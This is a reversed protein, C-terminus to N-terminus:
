GNSTTTSSETSDRGESGSAETTDPASPTPPDSSESSEGVEAARGRRKRRLTRWIGIAFLLVGAGILLGVAVTELTANVNVVLEAAESLQVGSTTWLTAEVGSVGNAIAQVPLTARTVGGAPITVTGTETVNLHGTTPRLRVEVTVERDSNNEIFLPLSSEHGILQIESGQVVSIQDEVGTAFEIFETRQTEWSETQIRANGITGILGIRLEEAAAVPDAYLATLDMGRDFATELEQFQEITEDSYSMPVLETETLASTDEAGDPLPQIETWENGSLEELLVALQEPDDLAERPLTTVIQRAENPLERAIVALLSAVETSADLFDLENEATVADAIAADLATDTVLVETGDIQQQSSPTASRDEALSVQDGDLIIVEAGWDTLAGLNDVTGAAPWSVDTRTYDFALLEDRDPAARPELEPEEEPETEGPETEGPETEEPETEPVAPDSAVGTEPQADAPDSPESEQTQAPDTTASDTEAPETEASDTAAPDTAAPDTAAPTPEPQVETFFEHESTAYGFSSPELPQDLGAQQQLTLSADAFELPFSPNELSELRELWSTATEPADAGLARISVLLRPDIALTASTGDVADLLLTLDGEAATLSELEGVTLLGGDGLDTVIPVIPIIGVANAPATANWVFTSRGQAATGESTQWDVTIGRSGFTEDALSETASAPLTVPIEVTTGPHVQEVDQRHVETGFADTPVLEADESWSELDYRTDITEQAIHFSIEGASAIADTRNSLLVTAEVPEDASVVGSNHLVLQASLQGDVAQATSTQATGTQATGTQATGTQATGTQALASQEAAAEASTAVDVEAAASPSLVPFAGILGLAAAAASVYRRWALRPARPHSAGSM